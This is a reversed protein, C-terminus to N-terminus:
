AAPPKALRGLFLVSKTTKDQIFFLFPHDARFRFPEVFCCFQIMCATAAAAETGEENVDVVARHLVKSVFLEKTGDVGSLDAVGDMFLDKMGMSTLVEILSLKEDLSFRPLWMDVNTWRMHFKDMVNNLDDATLKKEVEALNTTNHDPLIIVMSLTDGKYRLEVSRCQLEHNEGYCFVEGMFMMKVNVTETPSIHFDADTTFQPDFKDMWEGNFYIANVLFLRTLDDIADATVIEKVKDNTKEAVWSNITAASGNPDSCFFLMVSVGSSNVM